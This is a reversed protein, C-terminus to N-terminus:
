LEDAFFDTVFADITEATIETREDLKYKTVPLDPNATHDLIM